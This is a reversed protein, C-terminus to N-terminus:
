NYFPNYTVWHAREQTQADPHSTFLSKYTESAKPDKAVSFKDLVKTPKGVIGNTVKSSSPGNADAVLRSKKLKSSSPGAEETVIKRKGETSSATSTSLSAGNTVAEDCTVVTVSAIVSHKNKKTKKEAKVKERRSEMRSRAADLDDDEIPNLLIVDEPSYPKLCKLCEIKESGKNSKSVEKMARESVVCGCTWIFNFRFKGNMEQGVVPCIWRSKHEDRFGDGNEVGNGEAWDPNDTFSLEKVDKLSRLHSVVETVKSKDLLCELVTEKNYLRGLECAVVPTQLPQQSAACHRWRFAL